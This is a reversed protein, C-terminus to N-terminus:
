RFRVWAAAMAAMATRAAALGQYATDRHALLNEIAAQASFRRFPGGCALEWRLWVFAGFFM